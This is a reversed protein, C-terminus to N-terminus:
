GETRGPPPSATPHQPEARAANVEIKNCYPGWLNAHTWIQMAEIFEIDKGCNKCSPKISPKSPHICTYGEEFAQAPSFSRYGDAYVVYWGGAKPKHKQVFEHPVHFIAYGHEVPAIWAGGDTERNETEARESDTQISAIKLAWVEKHCRYRPMESSTLGQKTEPKDGEKENQSSM